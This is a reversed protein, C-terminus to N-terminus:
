KERGYAYVILKDLKDEMRSLRVDLERKIEARKLEAEARIAELRKDLLVVQASNNAILMAQESVRGELKAGWWVASLAVTVTTIIHGVSVSKELHWQGTSM